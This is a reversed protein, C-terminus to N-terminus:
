ADALGKFCEGAVHRWGPGYSERVAPGRDGLVEFGEHILQFRCRDGAAEFRLTIQTAKKPDGGPHWSHVLLDPRRCELVTGWLHETGESTIEYIRGGEHEEVVCRTAKDPEVAHTDFPWWASMNRTWTDFAHEVSCDLDLTLTVPELRTQTNM